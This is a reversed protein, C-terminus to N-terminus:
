EWVERKINEISDHILFSTRAIQVERKHKGTLDTLQVMWTDRYVKKSFTVKYVIGSGNEVFYDSNLLVTKTDESHLLGYESFLLGKDCINAEGAMFVRNNDTDIYLNDILIGHDDIEYVLRLVGVSNYEKESLKVESKRNTKKCFISLKTREQAIWVNDTDALIRFDKRTNHIINSYSDIYLHYNRNIGTYCKDTYYINVKTLGNYKNIEVNLIEYVKNNLIHCGKILKGDKLVLLTKKIKNQAICIRENHEYVDYGLMILRDRM